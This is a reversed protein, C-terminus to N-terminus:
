NSARTIGNKEDYDVKKDGKQNLLVILLTALIANIFGDVFVWYCPVEYFDVLASLGNSGEINLSKIENVLNNSLRYTNFLVLVHIIFLLGVSVSCSIRVKEHEKLFIRSENSKIFWGIALILFGLTAWFNHLYAERNNILAELLKELMDM